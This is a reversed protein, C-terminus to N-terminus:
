WLSCRKSSLLELIQPLSNLSSLKCFSLSIRLLHIRHTMILLLHLTNGRRQISQFNCDVEAVTDGARDVAGDKFFEADFESGEECFGIACKWVVDSIRTFVVSEFIENCRHFFLLRIEAKREVAIAVTHSHHIFLSVDHTRVVEKEEKGFIMELSMLTGGDNIRDGHRANQFGFHLPHPPLRVHADHSVGEDLMRHPFVSRMQTGLLRPVEEASFIEVIIVISEDGSETEEGDEGGRWGRIRKRREDMAIWLNILSGFPAGVAVVIFFGIHNFFDRLVELFFAVGADRDIADTYIEAITCPRPYPLAISGRLDAHAHLCSRFFFQFLHFLIHPFM